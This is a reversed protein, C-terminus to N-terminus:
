KKVEPLGALSTLLSYIFAVGGASIVLEWDTESMATGITILSVATQAFTKTARVLAAKIWKKTKNSMNIKGGEKETNFM